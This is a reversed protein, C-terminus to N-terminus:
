FILTWISMTHSGKVMIETRRNIIDWPSTAQRWFFIVSIKRSGTIFELQIVNLWPITHYIPPWWYYVCFLPLVIPIIGGNFKILYREYGRSMEKLSVLGSWEDETKGRKKLYKYWLGFDEKKVERKKTQAHTEIYWTRPEFNNGYWLRPTSNSM